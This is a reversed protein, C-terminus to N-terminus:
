VAKNQSYYHKLMDEFKLIEDKFEPMLAQAQTLDNERAATEILASVKQLRLGGLNGAVGKITHTLYTLSETDNNDLANTIDEASSGCDDLYMDILSLLRQPKGRVRKLATEEDWILLEDNAATQPIDTRTDTQKFTDALEATEEINKEEAAIWKHLMAALPEFDIPKSLYDNMGAELCKQRDGLMANATMAVIPIELYNQGATGARIQHTAEYGDMEPMQCDMLVLSYKNDTATKLCNLAELGNSAISVIVGMGELLGMAVEQNIQNDEVLLIRTGLPYPQAQNSHLSLHKHDAPKTNQQPEENGTTVTNLVNFLDSPTAPKPFFASFGAEAFIKADGEARIPTMMILKISKFRNDTQLTQALQLANMDPIQADLLAINFLAQGANCRAECVNLADVASHVISVEAGWKTLQQSLTKCTTDNDDIVLLHLHKIEIPPLQPLLETSKEIPLTISFCSGEGFTSEVDMTGQMLSCLKSVIALGLGTGGYRRTTSADVQSFADFLSNLKNPPIGVGTDSVTILLQWHKKDLERQDIRIIIEGRDTFKIANDVLNSLVQRLRGADGKIAPQKVKSADLILEINKNQTVLAFAECFESLMKLLDFTIIELELKGAEIKSFDLIDNILALLSKASTRAINARHLQEANLDSNIILGLMGLVGNMPTRIEHSMCALFESKTRVAEEAKEKAKRLDTEDQRQKTIDRFSWVRGSHIGNEHMPQSYQELTRGDNLKLTDNIKRKSDWNTEGIIISFADPEVLQSNITSLNTQWNDANIPASPLNWLESFHANSRTIVGSRDTVLVGNDTAELTAEILSLTEHVEKEARKSATIDTRISIYSEPKGDEGMFPVLTSDVWYIEGQKTKNCIEGHWVKGKSITLFMNRFFEADHLGSRLIRHNNGVLEIEDYGSIECFKKNAYIITGRIDTIAVISHQDLAFKQEALQALTKKTKKSAEALSQEHATRIKLMHEFSKTLCSIENHGSTDFELNTEGAAVKMSAEALNSIPLTIRRSMISAIITVAITIFFTFILYALGQQYAPKLVDDLYAESVLIWKTNLIDLHQYQSILTEGNLDKSEFFNIKANPREIPQIARDNLKKRLISDTNNAHPTRLFGDEGVLYQTIQSSNNYMPSLLQFIVKINLQIAFVGVKDGQSNLIPATIFGTLKNGDAAYREFDSFSAQGTSYSHHIAQSFKSNSLIGSYINEGLDIKKTISFLINGQSDILYIDDIYDYQTKLTILNNQQEDVIKKWNHSKVYKHLSLSNAQYDSSLASLLHHSTPLQSHAALDIKRYHFWNNILQQNINTIDELNSFANQQLHNNSYSFNFFALMSLPLISILIFSLLLTRRLSSSPQNLDQAQSTNIVERSDSTPTM